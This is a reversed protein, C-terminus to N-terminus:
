PARRVGFPDHDGGPPTQRGVSRKPIIIFEGGELRERLTMDGRTPISNPVAIDIDTTLLPPQRPESYGPHYRYLLPVLGGVVVIDQRYEEMARVCGVLEELVERHIEEMKM